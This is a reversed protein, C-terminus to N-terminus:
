AMQSRPPFAAANAARQGALAALAALAGRAVRAALVAPAVPVVVARGAPVTQAAALTRVLETASRKAAAALPVLPHAEVAGATRGRVGAFSATMAATM